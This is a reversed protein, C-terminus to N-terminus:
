PPGSARAAATRASRRGHSGDYHSPRRDLGCGSPGLARGQRPQYNGERDSRRFECTQADFGFGNDNTELIKAVVVSGDAGAHAAIQGAPWTIERFAPNSRPDAPEPRPSSLSDPLRGNVTCEYPYTEPYRSSQRLTRQCVMPVFLGFWHMSDKLSASRRAPSSSRRASM